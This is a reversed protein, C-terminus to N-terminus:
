DVRGMSYAIAIPCIFIVTAPNKWHFDHKIGTFVDFKRKKGGKLPSLLLICTEDISKLFGTYNVEHYHYIFM